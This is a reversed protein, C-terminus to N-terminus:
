NIEQAKKNLFVVISWLFFLGILISPILVLSHSFFTKEINQPGGFNLVKITEQM